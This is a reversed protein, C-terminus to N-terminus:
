HGLVVPLGSTRRRSSGEEPISGSALRLMHVVSDRKTGWRDMKSVTLGEQRELDVDLKGENL